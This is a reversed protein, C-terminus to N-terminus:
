EELEYPDYSELIEKLIAVEESSLSVGKGMKSHDPSWDRIDLKPKAGNWSVINVERAWGARGSSLEGLNAIVEFTFEKKTTAM